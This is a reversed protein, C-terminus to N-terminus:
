LESLLRRAKEGDAALQAQLEALGSFHKQSRLPAHFRVLLERGYIDEDFDFLNVELAPAGDPFSPRPGVNAMGQLTREGLEATVAFVGAPLVKGEAVELNATPFGITRGRREGEVVTGAALYPAGLLRNALSLEGARLLERIRSSSVKEGDSELLRFVELRDTVLSLDNLTGERGRGFRFDAGVLIAAPGLAALQGLFEDKDTAAYDRSFPILVVEEPGFASLLLTKEWASSLCGTSRFVMGSTPFFSIAVAPRGLKRGLEQMRGLLARHGVHVGDFNGISLVAGRASVASVYSLVRPGDNM